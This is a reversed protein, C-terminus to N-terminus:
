NGSRNAEVVKKLPDVNGVDFANERELIEAMEDADLEIKNAVPRPEELEAPPEGIEPEAALASQNDDTPAVYREATLAPTATAAAAVAPIIAGAEDQAVEDQFDPVPEDLARRFVMLSQFVEVRAKFLSPKAEMPLTETKVFEWGEAAVDNIAETLAFAFRDSNGKVGKARKPRRPTPVVKYEWKDMTKGTESARHVEECIGGQLELTISM